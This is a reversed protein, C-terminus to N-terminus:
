NLQRKVHKRHLFVSNVVISGTIPSLPPDDDVDRDDVVKQVLAEDPIFRRGYIHLLEIVVVLLKSFRHRGM